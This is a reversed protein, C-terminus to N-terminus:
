KVDHRTSDGKKLRVVKTNPLSKRLTDVVEDTVWPGGVELTKVQRLGKLASVLSDVHAASFPEVPEQEFTFIRLCPLTQVAILGKGTVTTGRLMLDRISKKGRLCELGDDSVAGGIVALTRLDPLSSIRKIGRDTVDTDELVITKVGRIAGIQELKEDLHDYDDGCTRFDDLQGGKLGDLEDRFMEDRIQRSRDAIEKERAREELNARHLATLALVLLCLIVCTLGVGIACRALLRCLVHKPKREQLDENV